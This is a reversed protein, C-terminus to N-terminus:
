NRQGNRKMILVKRPIILIFFLKFVILFLRGRVLVHFKGDWLFDNFGFNKCSLIKSFTAVVHSVQTGIAYVDAPIHSLERPKTKGQGYCKLWDTFSDKVTAGGAFFYIYYQILM